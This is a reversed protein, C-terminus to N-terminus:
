HNLSQMELAPPRPKLGPQPDLDWMSCTLSAYGPLYIFIFISLPKGQPKIPLSDAQLAPSGPETGPSPLDGLPPFPLGSWYEQRSFGMSLPAQCAETRPITLTPYSKAVM